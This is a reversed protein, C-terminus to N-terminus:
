TANMLTELMKDIVSLLKSSTGYAREIELLQTMEEDLNVGTERSLADRARDMLTTKYEADSSATQRANELWGASAAAASGIDTTPGLGTTPDFSRQASLETVLGRIRDSFGAAGTANYTYAPNGPDGIGGDRLLRWDGGASAVVSPNVKIAGALGDYVTGSPPMAPAGSYTFLGPIDPLAPVASQDKESFTEILGRAVEDMQRQYTVAYNDRVSALGAIRGNEVGLMAGSGTVPVGDIYVANGAIGPALTNSPQYTVSRPVSDFLTLGSDTFLMMDNDARSVTRVGLETSLQRVIEDRADLQDTVDTRNRTGIVIESNLKEYKSLLSNVNNVSTTLDADAQRRVTQIVETADNLSNALNNAASVAAAALTPDDPKSAYVQLASNLKGILSAPSTELSPDGVTAELRDLANAIEQQGSASSMASQLSRTLADNTARTIGAIAVGGGPIAVANAIKRSALPNGANAINRSVVAAQEGSATLGSRAIDLGINLM